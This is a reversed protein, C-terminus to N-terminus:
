GIPSNKGDVLIQVDASGRLSVNGDIDVQVSPVNQLLESASGARSMLDQDVNYVRKDIGNIQMARETTVLVESLDVPSEGLNLTGLDAETQTSDLVFGRTLLVAFGVFYCRCYYRGPEVGSVFFRGQKDSSTGAAMSSDAERMVLINVFELPRKTGANVIRGSV